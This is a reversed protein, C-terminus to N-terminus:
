VWCNVQQKLMAANVRMYAQGLWRVFGLLVKCCHQQRRQPNSLFCVKFGHVNAIPEDFLM